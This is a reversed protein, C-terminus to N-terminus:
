RVMTFNPITNRYWTISSWIRNIKGQSTDDLLLKYLGEITNVFGFKVVDFIFKAFTGIAKVITTLKERNKPDAM